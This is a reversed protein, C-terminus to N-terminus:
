AFHERRGKGSHREAADDQCSQGYGKNEMESSSRGSFSAFFPTEQKKKQEQLGREPAAAGKQEDMGVLWVQGNVGQKEQGDAYGEREIEGRKWKYGICSQSDDNRGEQGKREEGSGVAECSKARAQESQYYHDAENKKEERANDLGLNKELNLILLGQAGEGGFEVLEGLFIQRFWSAAALGDPISNEGNGVLGVQLVGPLVAEATFKGAETVGQFGATYVDDLCVVVFSRGGPALIFILGTNVM